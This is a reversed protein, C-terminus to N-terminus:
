AAATIRKAEPTHAWRAIIDNNIIERTHIVHGGFPAPMPSPMPQPRTDVPDPLRYLGVAMLFCIAHGSALALAIAANIGIDAGKAITESPKLSGAFVFAVADAIQNNAHEVASSKYETVSATARATALVKKTAEIQALYKSREEAIAIKGALADRDKTRELCKAKCGGRAAEQEIALNASALQARLAEATVAPSWANAAELDALRKEWMALNTKDESVADRTDAFKTNQVRAGDREQGRRGATYSQDIGYQITIFLVAAVSGVIGLFWQRKDFAKYAAEPAFAAIFTVGALALAHLPSVAWGYMFSMAAGVALVVTGARAWNRGTPTLEGLMATAFTDIPNRM